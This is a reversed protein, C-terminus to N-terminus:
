ELSVSLKAKKFATTSSAEDDLRAVAHLKKKGRSGPRQM